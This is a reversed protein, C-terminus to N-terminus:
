KKLLENVLIKVQDIVESKESETLAFIKVGDGKSSGPLGNRINTIQNEQGRAILASEDTNFTLIGAKENEIQIEISKRLGGSFELDKRLIQRGKNVRKRQYSTLSESLNRKIRKLDTKSTTSSLLKAKQAETLNVKKGIYEGFSNGEVDQNARFVRAQMLGNGTNLASILIDGIVAGGTKGRLEAIRDEINSFDFPM